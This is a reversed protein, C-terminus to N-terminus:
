GSAAGLQCVIDTYLRGAPDHLVTVVDYEYGQPDVVQMNVDITRDYNVRFSYKRLDTNIGGASAEARIRGMGTEGLIRAWKTKYFVWGTSENASNVTTAPVNITIRRNKEGITM